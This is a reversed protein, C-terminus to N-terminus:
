RLLVSGGVRRDENGSCNLWQSGERRGGAGSAGLVVGEGTGGVIVGEGGTGPLGEEQELMGEEGRWGLLGRM